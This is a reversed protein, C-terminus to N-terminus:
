PCTECGEFNKGEYCGCECCVDPSKYCLEELRPCCATGTETGGFGCFSGCCQHPSEGCGLEPCGSLCQGSVCVEKEACQHGCAGCNEVDRRIEKCFGGCCVEGRTGGKTPACDSDSACACKGERCKGGPCTYNCAGCNNPDTATDVCTGTCCQETAGICGNGCRGCNKKDTDLNTCEGGCCAKPQGFSPACNECTMLTPPLPITEAGKQLGSATKKVAAAVAASLKAEAEAKTNACVKFHKATWEGNAKTVAAESSAVHASEQKEVAGKVVQWEQLCKDSCCVPVSSNWNEIKSSQLTEAFSATVSAEACYKTGSQVVTPTWPTVKDTVKAVVCFMRDKLRKKNPCVVGCSKIYETFQLCETTPSNQQCTIAASATETGGLAGSGGPVWRFLSALLGGSAAGLLRRRTTTAGALKAMADFRDSSM